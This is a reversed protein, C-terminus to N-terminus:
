EKSKKATSAEAQIAQLQSSLDSVKTELVTVKAESLLLKSMLDDITARQKALFANIFETEM